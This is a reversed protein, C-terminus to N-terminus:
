ALAFGSGWGHIENFNGAGAGIDIDIEGIRGVAIERAFRDVPRRSAQEMAIAQLREISRNHQRRFETQPKSYKICQSRTFSLPDQPIMRRVGLEQGIRPTTRGMGTANGDIQREHVLVAQRKGHTRFEVSKGRQRVMAVEIDSRFGLAVTGQEEADHGGSSPIEVPVLPPMILQKM